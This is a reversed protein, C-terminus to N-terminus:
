EAVDSGELLGPPQLYLCPSATGESKKPGHFYASLQYVRHDSNWKGKAEVVRLKPIVKDHPEWQLAEVKKSGCVGLTLKSFIIAEGTELQPYHLEIIMHRHRECPEVEWMVTSTPIGNTADDTPVPVGVIIDASIDTYWKVTDDDDKATATINNSHFEHGNEIDWCDEEVPGFLNGTFIEFLKTVIDRRGQVADIKKPGHFYASLQYVRRDSVFEGKVEVVRMKPIKFSMTQYHPAEILIHHVDTDGVVKDRPEWQLAEVKKSGCVGLTLKSFLIAEGTELLPYHLKIIMHRHGECPEVEWMVTSTPIGNTALYIPVDNILPLSTLFCYYFLSLIFFSGDNDDTPAMPVGVTIEATTDAYWKVTHEDQFEPGQEFDEEGLDFFNEAFIDFLQTVIARM